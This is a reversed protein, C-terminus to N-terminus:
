TDTNELVCASSIIETEFVIEEIRKRICYFGALESM